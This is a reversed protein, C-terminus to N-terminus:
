QPHLYHEVEYILMVGDDRRSRLPKRYSLNDLAIPPTEQKGNDTIFHMFSKDEDYASYRLVM